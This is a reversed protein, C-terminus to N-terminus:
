QLLNIKWREKRKIKEWNGIIERWDEISLPPMADGKGYLFPSFDIQQLVEEMYTSISFSFKGIHHSAVGVSNIKERERKVKEWYLLNINFFGVGVSQNEMVREGKNKRLGWYNIELGWYFPFVDCRGKWISLPSFWDAPVSRGYINFNLFPIERYLSFHSLPLNIQQLQELTKCCCHGCSAQLLCLM